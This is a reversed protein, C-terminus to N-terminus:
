ACMPEVGAEGHHPRRSGPPETVLLDDYQTDTNVTQHWVLGDFTASRGAGDASSNTRRRLADAVLPTM